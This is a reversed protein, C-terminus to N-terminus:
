RREKLSELSRARTQSSYAPPQGRDDMASARSGGRGREVIWKQTEEEGEWEEEEEREEGIGAASLERGTGRVEAADVGEAADADSADASVFFELVRLSRTVFSRLRRENLGLSGLSEASSDRLM